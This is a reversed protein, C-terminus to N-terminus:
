RKPVALSTERVHASRDRPHRGRAADHARHCLKPSLFPLLFSGPTPWATSRGPGVPFSPNGTSVSLTALAGVALALIGASAAVRHLSAPLPARTGLVRIRRARGERRAHGAVAVRDHAADRHADPAGRRRCWRRLPLPIPPRPGM